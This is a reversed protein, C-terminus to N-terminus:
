SHDYGLFGSQKLFERMAEVVQKDNEVEKGRILIKGGKRFEIIVDDDISFQITSDDSLVSSSKTDTTESLFIGINEM